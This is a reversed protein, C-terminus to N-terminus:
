EASSACSQMAAVLADAAAEDDGDKIAQVALMALKRVGEGGPKSSPPAEEESEEEMGAGPKKPALMAITVGAM